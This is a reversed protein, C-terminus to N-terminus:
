KIRTLKFNTKKDFKGYLYKGDDSLRLTDKESGDDFIIQKGIVVYTCNSKPMAAMALKMAKRKVWSIGALKMAEDSIRVDADMVVEKDNKFEVTIKTSMGKRVARVTALAKQLEAELKAKEAETPKRGKKKEFKAYIRARGKAVDKEVDQSMKNLEDAMINANYYVRGALNTQAQTNTVCLFMMAAILQLKIM